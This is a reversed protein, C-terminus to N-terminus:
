PLFNRGKRSLSGGSQIIKKLDAMGADGAVLAGKPEYNKVEAEAVAYEEETLYPPNSLIADFCAGSEIAEFWDSQLLDVQTSLGLLDRNAEALKLSEASRDTATIVPASNRKRGNQLPRLLPSPSQGSGTGLDLIQSPGALRPLVLEILGETEPRPILARADVSLPVIM